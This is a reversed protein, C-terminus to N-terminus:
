VRFWSLLTSTELGIRSPLERKALSIMKRKVEYARTKHGRSAPPVSAEPIESIEVYSETAADNYKVFSKWLSIELLCVGLGYVDHQM